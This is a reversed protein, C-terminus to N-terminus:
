TVERQSVFLKILSTYQLFVHHEAIFSFVVKQKIPM